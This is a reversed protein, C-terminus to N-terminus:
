GTATACRGAYVFAAAVSSTPQVGGRFGPPRDGDLNNLKEERWVRMVAM